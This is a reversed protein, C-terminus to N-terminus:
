DAAKCNLPVAFAGVKVLAVRDDADFGILVDEAGDARAPDSWPVDTQMITVFPGVTAVAGAGDWCGSYACVSFGGDSNFVVDMPTMEDRPIAGCSSEDCHVEVSNRCRWVSADGTRESPFYLVRAILPGDFEYVAISQRARREHKVYWSATEVTTARTATASVVSLAARCSPCSEFYDTMSAQLARRGAAEVRLQSGDVTVWEVDATVLAAMADVDHANFAAVFREVAVTPDVAGTTPIAAAAAFLLLGPIVAM